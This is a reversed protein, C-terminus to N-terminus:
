VVPCVSGLGIRKLTSVLCSRFLSISFGMEFTLLIRRFLAGSTEFVMHTLDETCGRGRLRRRTYIHNKARGEKEFALGLLFIITIM